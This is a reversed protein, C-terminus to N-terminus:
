DESRLRSSVTNEVRRMSDLELFIEVRRLERIVVLIEIPRDVRASKPARIATPRIDTRVLTLRASSGLVFDEIGVVDLDSSGEFGTVLGDSSALFGALM